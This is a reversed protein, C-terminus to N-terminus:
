GRNPSEYEMANTSDSFGSTTPDNVIGVITAVVLAANVFALVNNTVESFDVAVGFIAMFTQVLLGIAPVLTAWFRPNRLRVKWNIQNM